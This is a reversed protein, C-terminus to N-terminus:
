ESRNSGAINPYDARLSTVVSRNSTRWHSVAHGWRYVRRAAGSHGISPYMDRWNGNESAM